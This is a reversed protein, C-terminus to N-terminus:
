EGISVLIRPRLVGDMKDSDELIVNTVIARPEFEDVADVVSSLLLAKASTIPMDICSWDTGFDRHLPVSGIHTAIIFKVNQLIEEVETQPAFNVKNDLSVQYIM